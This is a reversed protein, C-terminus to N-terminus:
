LKGIKELAQELKESNFHKLLTQELVSAYSELAESFEKGFLLEPTAPIVGMSRLQDFADKTYTHAVFIFVTRSNMKSAQLLKIKNIFPSLQKENVGNKPLVDCVVFGPKKKQNEWQIL